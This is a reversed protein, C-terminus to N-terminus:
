EEATEERKRNVYILWTAVSSVLTFLAVFVSLVKAENHWPRLYDRTALGVTVFLPYNSIKNFSFIREVTDLSGPNLYTGSTQGSQILVQLQRSVTKSGITSSGSLEPYRVMVSLGNDRLTIVGSEGLDLSSFLKSVFDVSLAGFVVGGFSGDPNNIRRAIHFVWQKTLRGFVPPGIVLGANPDAKSRIFVERDAFSIRTGPVIRDGYLIEGLDNTVRLGDLEPIQKKQELIYENLYHSDIGGSKLQKETEKQVSFLAVSSKDIIGAITVNLSQSLNRTQIEVRSEYQKRSQFLSYGAMGIVFLNVVMVTALLRIIFGRGSIFFSSTKRISEVM